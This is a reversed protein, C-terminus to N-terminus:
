DTVEFEQQAGEVCRSLVASSRDRNARGFKVGRIAWNASGPSAATVREVVVGVFAEFEAHSTRVAETLKQELDACTVPRRHGEPKTERKWIM